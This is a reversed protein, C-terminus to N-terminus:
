FTIYAWHYPILHTHQNTCSETHLLQFTNPHLQLRQARQQLRFHIEKCTIQAALHLFLCQLSAGGHRSSGRDGGQIYPPQPFTLYHRSPGGSSSGPLDELNSGIHEQLSKHFTRCICACVCTILHNM